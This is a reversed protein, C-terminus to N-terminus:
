LFFLFCYFIRIFRLIKRPVNCLLLYVPKGSLSQLTTTAVAAETSSDATTVTETKKVNTYPFSPLIAMRHINHSGLTRCRYQEHVIRRMVITHGDDDDDDDQHPVAAAAAATRNRSSSMSPSSITSAPLSMTTNRTGFLQMPSKPQTTPIFTGTQMAMETNYLENIMDTLQADLSSTTHQQQAMNKQFNSYILRYFEIFLLYFRDLIM